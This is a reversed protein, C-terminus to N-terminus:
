KSYEKLITALKLNIHANNILLFLDLTSLIAGQLTSSIKELLEERHQNITTNTNSLNLTNNNKTTKQKQLLQLFIKQSM